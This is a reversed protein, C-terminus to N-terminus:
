WRDDHPTDKLGELLNDLGEAQGEGFHENPDGGKALTDKLAEISMGKPAVAVEGNKNVYMQRNDEKPIVHVPEGTESDFVYKGAKLNDVIAQLRTLDNANPIDNEFGADWLKAINERSDQPITSAIQWAEPSGDEMVINYLLEAVNM